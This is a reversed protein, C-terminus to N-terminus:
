ETLILKVYLSRNFCKRQVNGRRESCLFLLMFSVMTVRRAASVEVTAKAGAVGEAEVVTVASLASGVVLAAKREEATAAARKTGATALAPVIAWSFTESGVSTHSVPLGEASALAARAALYALARLWFLELKAGMLRKVKSRLLGTVRNSM